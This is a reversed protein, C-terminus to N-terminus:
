NQPTLEDLIHPRAESAGRDITLFQNANVTIWPGIEGDPWQVRVKVNEADGLGFHIWGNQGGAHGGGVTVERQITYRGIRVEIWSGIGDLNPGPQALQVGIWNGMPEPQSADGSGVNRWIKVNERRNVVVLDLMGDLNLDTLAAGRARAFSLIGADEASEVFTGDAQGLLLNSPDEAAYETMAEVNGKSVFLDILGDNNVDQFEPHWATSPLVVDGAFPRHATVGREFAIDSYNPQGVGDALTQLKNDGQSTLYV